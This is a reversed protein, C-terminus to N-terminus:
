LVDGPRAPDGDLRFSQADLAINGYTGKLKIKM